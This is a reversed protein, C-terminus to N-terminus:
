DRGHAQFLGALNGNERAYDRGATYFDLDFGHRAV